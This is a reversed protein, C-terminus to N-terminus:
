RKRYVGPAPGWPVLDAVPEPLRERRGVVLAGGARIEGLLRALTRRRSADDFYTFAVYRCLVLDFPGRPPEQRLDHRLFSVGKRFEPRLAFLPGERAFAEDRWAPPLERLSGGRYRAAAARALLHPDLDTSLVRLSLDPFRAALALRWLIVLSYPEEGSACGASWASLTRDRRGVAAEAVAPLVTRGLHEFVNAERYFRSVSITCLSDLVAWEEPHRELYARYAAADALRLAQLRLGLRRCVQRRVRRFGPWALGLRPLAWTLFAVCTADNM